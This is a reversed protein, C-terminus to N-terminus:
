TENVWAADRRHVLLMSFYPASEGVFDGLATAKQEPLTAREVYRTRDALGLESLVRRVKELHRGVKIIAAADCGSLRQRLEDEPLPAPIISLTDNRAALPRGVAAACAMLSSVGPVVTVRCRGSLRQFLYLFSGYFFPDGECLVVVNLGSAAADALRDAALDYIEAKPFAGDGINMRIAYEAVGKTM